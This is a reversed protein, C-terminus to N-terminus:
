CCFVLACMTYYLGLVVFWAGKSFLKSRKIMEFVDCACQCKIYDSSTLAWKMYQNDAKNVYMHVCGMCMCVTYLVVADVFSCIIDM